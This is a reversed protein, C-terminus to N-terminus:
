TRSASVSVPTPISAAGRARMKSGNKLVFSCPLPVPRPRDVTNPMTFCLPPPTHTYLSGPWPVVKLTYKGFHSLSGAVIAQNEEPTGTNRNNSAFKPLTTRALTLSYRGNATFILSGRPTPGFTPTRKGAADITDSAVITWTGVLSKADQAAADSLLAGLTLFLLATLVPAALATRRDTSKARQSMSVEAHFSVRALGLDWM